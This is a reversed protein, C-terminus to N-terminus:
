FPVADGAFCVEDLPSGRKALRKLGDRFQDRSSRRHVREDVFGRRKALTKEISDHFGSRSNETNDWESGDTKQHLLTVEWLNVFGFLHRM